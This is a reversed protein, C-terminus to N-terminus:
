NLIALRIEYLSRSTAKCVYSAALCPVRLELINPVLTTNPLEVVAREPTLERVTCDLVCSKNAFVIKGALHTRGSPLRALSSRMFFGM